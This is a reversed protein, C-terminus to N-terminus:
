RGAVRIAAEQLMETTRMVEECAADFDALGVETDEDFEIELL